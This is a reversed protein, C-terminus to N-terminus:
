EIITQLEKLNTNLLNVQKELIENIRSLRDNSIRLRTNEKELHIIKNELQKVKDCEVEEEDEETFELGADIICDSFELNTLEELSTVLEDYLDYEKSRLLTVIENVNLGIYTLVRVPDYSNSFLKNVFEDVNITSFSRYGNEGSPVPDMVCENVEEGFLGRLQKYDDYSVKTIVEREEGHIMKFSDISAIFYPHKFKRALKELNIEVM